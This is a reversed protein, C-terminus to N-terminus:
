IAVSLILRRLYTFCDIVLAINIRVNLFITGCSCAFLLDLNWWFVM